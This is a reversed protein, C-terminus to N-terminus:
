LNNRFIALRVYIKYHCYLRIRLLVCFPNTALGQKSLSYVTYVNKAFLRVCNGYGCVCVCVYVSAHVCARVCACVCACVCLCVYVCVGVCVCQCVCVCLSVCVCVCMM